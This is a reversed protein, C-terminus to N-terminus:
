HRGGRRRGTTVRRRLETGSRATALDCRRVTFAGRVVLTTGELWAASGFLRMVTWFLVPWLAVLVLVSLAEGLLAGISLALLPVLLLMAGILLCGLV